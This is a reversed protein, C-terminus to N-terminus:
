PLCLTIFHNFFICETVNTGLNFVNNTHIDTGERDEELYTQINDTSLCQERAGVNRNMFVGRRFKVASAM